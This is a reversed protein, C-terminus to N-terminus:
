FLASWSPIESGEQVVHQVVHGATNSDDQRVGTASVEVMKTKTEATTAVHAVAARAAAALKPPRVVLLPLKTGHLVRETISGLAWRAFGTRGHTAIAIADCGGFVGAGETDDGRAAIRMITEAVDTGVGVSWTVSLGPHADKLRAAITGLYDEAGDVALAEPMNEEMAEYPSVVLALHLAPTPSLAAALEAAPELAAEALPSGDLPVLLRPLHELDPHQVTLTPGQERLVLVPVPAHRAVQQAVSGLLWRSFGTRGHSTMVVLAAQKDSAVELISQAAPGLLVETETGVSAFVPLGAVEALYGAFETREAELTGVSLPPILAPGYEIPMTAVRVLMVTGRSAEAIKAAVPVAREARPSGDLPVLVRTFM